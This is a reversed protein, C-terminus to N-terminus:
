KTEERGAAPLPALPCRLNACDISRRHPRRHPNAPGATRNGAMRDPAPTAWARGCGCFHEGEHGVDADCTCTHGGETAGVEPCCVDGDTPETPPAVLFRAGCVPCDTRTPEAPPAAAVPSDDDEDMFVDTWAELFPTVAAMAKEIADSLPWVDTRGQCTALLAAEADMLFPWVNVVALTADNARSVIAAEHAKATRLAAPTPPAPAVAALADLVERIVHGATATMLERNREPVQSWPVASDQRTAYGFEPALREYHGHFWRAVREPDMEELATTTDALRQRARLFAEALAEERQRTAELDDAARVAMCPWDEGDIVCVAPHDRRRMLAHKARLADLDVDGM